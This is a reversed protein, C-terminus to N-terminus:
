IRRRAPASGMPVGGPIGGFSGAGQAAVPFNGNFQCSVVCQCNGQGDLTGVGQVFGTNQAADPATGSAVAGAAPPPAGAAPPAGGAPPAAAAPAGGTIASGGGQGKQSIALAQFMAHTKEATPNVSFVM